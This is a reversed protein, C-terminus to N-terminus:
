YADNLVVRLSACTNLAGWGIVSLSGGVAGLGYMATPISLVGTAFIVKLFIVSARPWGVLRFDVGDVNKKFVEFEDDNPDFVVDEVEGHAHDVGTSTPAAPHIGDIKEAMIAFHLATVLSSTTRLLTKEDTSTM